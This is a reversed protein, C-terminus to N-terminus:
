ILPAYDKFLRKIDSMGKINFSKGLMERKWLMRTDRVIFAIVGVQNNSQLM